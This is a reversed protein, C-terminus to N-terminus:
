ELNAEEECTWIENGCLNIRRVTKKVVVIEVEKAIEKDGSFINRLFDFMNGM